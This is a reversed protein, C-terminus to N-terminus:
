TGKNFVTVLLAFVTVVFNAILFQPIKILRLRANASEVIGIAVAMGAIKLFLTGISIWEWEMPQPWLLSTTLAMFLFLKMSASYLILGLDPGSYDLVMVEHIMTLELHTNPDDIPIRSNETLLILFFSFFLLLFVPKLTPHVSEWQFIANLSLANTTVALVVLGLFFALESFAGFTAERSAGMGEFSSGVDLAALIIAFRALALLYAFLILDGEFHFPAKGTIPLLLGAVFTTAVIIVPAVKLLPSATKSYVAGKRFLKILDYYVQLLPPGKRGAFFAKTKAIIGLFFPPTIALIFIHIIFPLASFEL